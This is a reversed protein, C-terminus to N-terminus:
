FLDFKIIMEKPVYFSKSIKKRFKKAKNESREIKLKFATSKSFLEELKKALENPDSSLYIQDIAKAIAPTLKTTIIYDAIVAIYDRDSSIEDGVSIQLFDGHYNKKFDQNRFNKKGLSCFCHRKETSFAKYYNIESEKRDPLDIWIESPNYLFVPYGSFSKELPAMIHKWYADLPGLRKFSYTISEGTKITPANLVNELLGHLNEAWENNIAVIKNNKLVVGDRMLQRIRKYIGQITVTQGQSNITDHLDIIEQAGNELLNKVILNDLKTHILIQM